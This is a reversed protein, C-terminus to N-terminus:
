REERRITKPERLKKAAIEFNNGKKLEDLASKAAITPKANGPKMTTQAQKTDRAFKEATRVADQDKALIDGYRKILEIKRDNLMDGKTIDSISIDKMVTRIADDNYKLLNDFEKKSLANLKGTDLTWMGNERFMNTKTPEFKFGLRNLDKQNFATTGMDITIKNDVKTIIAADSGKREAKPTAFATIGEERSTTGELIAYETKQKGIEDTGYSILEGENNRAETIMNNAETRYDELTTKQIGTEKAIASMEEDTWSAVDNINQTNPIKETETLITKSIPREKTYEEYILKNKIKPSVVRGIDNDKKLLTIDIGAKDASIRIEAAKDRASKLENLNIGTVKSIETLEDTNKLSLTYVNTPMEFAVKGGTSALSPTTIQIGTVKQIKIADREPMVQTLEIQQISVGRTAGTPLGTPMLGKGEATNWYKLEELANVMTNYEPAGNDIATKIMLQVPSDGLIKSADFLISAAVQPNDNAKIAIEKAFKMSTDVFDVNARTLLEKVVFGATNDAIAVGDALMESFQVPNSAIQSKFVASVVSRDLNPVSNVFEKANSPNGISKEVKTNITNFATEKTPKWTIVDVPSLAAKLPSSSEFVKAVTKPSTLPVYLVDRTSPKISGLITNALSFQGSSPLAINAAKFEKGTAKVANAVKAVETLGRMGVKEVVKTEFGVIGGSAIMVLGDVIPNGTINFSLIEEAIAKAKETTLGKRYAAINKQIDPNSYLENIGQEGLANAVIKGNWDDIDRILVSPAFTKIVEPKITGNEGINMYLLDNKQPSVVIGNQKDKLTQQNVMDGAKTTKTITLTEVQTEPTIGLTQRIINPTQTGTQIKFETQKLWGNAVLEKQAGDYLNKQIWQLGENGTEGLIPINWKENKKEVSTVGTFTDKDNTTQQTAKITSILAATQPNSITLFKSTKLTPTQEQIGTKMDIPSTGTYVTGMSSEESSMHHMLDAKVTGSGSSDSGYIKTAANLQANVIKGVKLASEPTSLGIGARNTISVLNTPRSEGYGIAQFSGTPKISTLKTLATYEEKTVPVTIQKDAIQDYYTYQTQDTVITPTIVVNQSKRTNYYDLADKLSAFNTQQKGPEAITFQISTTEMKDLLAKTTLGQGKLLNIKIQQNTINLIKDKEYTALQMLGNDAFKIQDLGEITNVKVAKIGSIADQVMKSPTNTPQVIYQMNQLDKTSANQLVGTPMNSKVKNIATDIAGVGNIANRIIDTTTKSFQIKTVVDLTIKPVDVKQKAILDQVQKNINASLQTNNNVIKAISPTNIIPPKWDDKIVVNQTITKMPSKSTDFNLKAPTTTPTATKFTITRTPTRAPANKLVMRM